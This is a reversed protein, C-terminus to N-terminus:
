FLHTLPRVGVLNGRVGCVGCCDDMYHREGCISCFIIKIRCRSTAPSPIKPNITPKYAEQEKNTYSCTIALIFPMTRPNDSPNIGEDVNWQIFGSV